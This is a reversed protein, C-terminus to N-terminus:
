CGSLNTKHTQLRLKQLFFTAKTNVLTKFIYCANTDQWQQIIVHQFNTYCSPKMTSHMDCSSFQQKLNVKRVFACLITQVETIFIFIFEM